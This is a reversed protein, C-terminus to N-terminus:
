KKLLTYSSILFSLFAIAIACWNFFLQRKAIKADNRLKNLSLNDVENQRKEKDQKINLIKTFGGQHLFTEIDIKSPQIIHRNSITPKLTVLNYDELIKLYYSHRFDKHYLNGKELMENMTSYEIILCEKFENLLFDLILSDNENLETM